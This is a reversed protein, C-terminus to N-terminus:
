KRSAAAASLRRRTAPPPSRRYCVAASSSRQLKVLPYRIPWSIVCFPPSSCRASCLGVFCPSDTSRSLCVFVSHFLCLPLRVFRFPNQARSLSTLTSSPRLWPSDLPNTALTLPPGAGEPFCLVARVGEKHITIPLDPLNVRSRDGTAAAIARGYIM